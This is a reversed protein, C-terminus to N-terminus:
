RVFSAQPRRGNLPLASTESSKALRGQGSARKSRWRGALDRIISVLCCSLWRRLTGTSVRYPGILTPPEADSGRGM